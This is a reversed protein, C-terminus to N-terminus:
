CCKNEKTKNDEDDGIRISKNIERIGQTLECMKPLILDVNEFTKASTEIYACNQDSAFQAGEAETVRRESIDIKNGIILIPSKPDTIDRYYNIWLSLKEFSEKCSVDFVVIAAVSDRYYVPALSRYKEMGATDWIFFTVTEEESIAHSVSFLSGGVTPQYENVFQQKLLVNALTTKGVFSEGIM